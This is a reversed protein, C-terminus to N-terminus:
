GNAGKFVSFKARIDSHGMTKLLTRVHPEDFQTLYCTYDMIERPTAKKAKDM